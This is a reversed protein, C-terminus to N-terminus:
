RKRTRVIWIGAAFLALVSTSPEPVATTLTLSRGNFSGGSAVALSELGVGITNFTTFSGDFGPDGDAVSFVTSGTTPGILDATGLIAEFVSGSGTASRGPQALAAGLAAYVITDADNSAPAFGGTSDVTLNAFSGDSGSDFVDVDYGNLNAATLLSVDAGSLTERLVIEVGTLTQGPAVALSTDLGASGGAPRLFLDYVVASQADPCFAASVLILLLFTRACLMTM